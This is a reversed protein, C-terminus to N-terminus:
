AFRAENFSQKEDAYLVDRGAGGSLIDSGEGGTLVDNGQEGFLRDNGAGGRVIDSGEGAYIKDNEDMGEILDQNDTGDMHDSEETGIIRNVTDSLETNEFQLGLTNLAYNEVTIKQGSNLVIHLTAGALSYRHRADDEYIISGATIAEINNGLLVNNFYIKGVLDSDHIITDGDGTNIYYSDNGEGGDLIDAHAGSEGGHLQDDNAGGILHDSGADGYLSDNGKGGEIYDDGERGYITDVGAGGYLRDQKGGGSFDDNGSSGFKIIKPDNAFSFNQNIYGSEVDIYATFEKGDIVIDATGTEGSPYDVKMVLALFDARDNIWNETINGEGTSPDHLEFRSAVDSDVEVMIQSLGALAARAHVNTFALDRLEGANAFFRTETSQILNTDFKLFFASAKSTFNDEITEGLHSKGEVAGRLRDLARHVGISQILKGFEQADGTLLSALNETALSRLKDFGVEQFSEWGIGIDNCWNILTQDTLFDASKVASLATAYADFAFLINKFDDLRDLGDGGAAHLRKTQNSGLASFLITGSWGANTEGRASDKESLKAFLIEGVGSADEDAIEDLTPFLWSGDSLERRSKVIDTLAKVAVRNSAAQMLADSYPIDRLEMQRKSYERILLAYGGRNANAEAAGELWIKEPSDPLWSAIKEYADSYDGNANTRRTLYGNVIDIQAQTLTFTM